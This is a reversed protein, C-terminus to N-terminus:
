IPSMCLYKVEKEEKKEFLLARPEQEGTGPESGYQHFAQLCDSPAEKQHM